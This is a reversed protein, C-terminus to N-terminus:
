GNVIFSLGDITHLAPRVMQLTNVCRCVSWQSQVTYSGSKYVVTYVLRM